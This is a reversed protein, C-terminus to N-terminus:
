SLANRLLEPLTLPLSTSKDKQSFNKKKEKKKKECVGVRVYPTM